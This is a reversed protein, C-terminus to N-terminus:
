RDEVEVAAQEAGVEGERAGVGDAGRHGQAAVRRGESARERDRDGAREGIRTAVAAEEVGDIALGKGQGPRHVKGRGGICAGEPDRTRRRDGDAPSDRIIGGGASM